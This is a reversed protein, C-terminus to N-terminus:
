FNVMTKISGGEGSSAFELAEHIAPFRFRHTILPAPDIKGAAILAVARRYVNAYRFVGYISLEKVLSKIVPVEVTDNGMGIWVVRGGPRAVEFAAQITADAGACEMVVDAWDVLGEEALCGLLDKGSVNLTRAAGMKHAMALRHPMLDVAAIEGAGAANAAAVALLGITGTGLVAVREGPLLRALTVAHMGVSLPEITAGAEYSVNDPLRYAFDEPSTVYECFAGHVPPTAMFQVDQCLNYRGSMCHRCRRCPIGPELAVRDGVELMTVQPGLEVVEGACEHGLILPERVVFDGIRGHQFYHVDSGCVGVSKMRVLVEKEGPRPRPIERISTKGIADLYVAKMMEAGM